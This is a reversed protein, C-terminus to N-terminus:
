KLTFKQPPPIRLLAIGFIINTLANVYGFLMIIFTSTETAGTLSTQYAWQFVIRYIFYIIFGICILFTTNGFLNRYDHTIMFNITNVSFLVILFCYLVQFYPAFNFIQGFILYETVWVLTPVALLAYFLPKRGRLLGWAHFQLAILLWEILIFINIPVINHAHLVKILFGSVLEMIAGLLILIFFPQYGSKKVRRLRVLGVILPFLIIESLLFIYFAKM